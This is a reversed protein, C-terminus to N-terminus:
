KHKKKRPGTRNKGKRKVVTKHKTGGKKSSRTAPKKIKKKSNTRSPRGGSDLHRVYRLDLQREITDVTAIEVEITDGDKMWLPPTLM